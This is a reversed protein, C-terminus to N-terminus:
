TTAIPAVQSSLEGRYIILRIGNKRPEESSAPPLFCSRINVM